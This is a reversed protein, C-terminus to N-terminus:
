RRRWKQYEEHFDNETLIDLLRQSEVQIEETIDVRNGKLKLKL